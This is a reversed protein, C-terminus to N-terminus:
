LLQDRDTEEMDAQNERTGQSGAIQIDCATRVVM